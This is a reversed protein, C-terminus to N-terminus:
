KIMILRLFWSKGKTKNNDNCFTNNPRFKGFASCREENFGSFEQLTEGQTTLIATLITPESIFTQFSEVSIVNSSLHEQEIFSSQCDLVFADVALDTLVEVNKGKVM